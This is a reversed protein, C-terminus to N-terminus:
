VNGATEYCKDSKKHGGAKSCANGEMNEYLAEYLNFVNGLICHLKVM